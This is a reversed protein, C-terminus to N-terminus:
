RHDRRPQRWQGLGDHDADRAVTGSVLQVGGSLVNLAGDAQTTTSVGLLGALQDVAARREDTLSNVNQGGADGAVIGRNLQAIQQLLGNAQALTGGDSAGTGIGSQLTSSLQSLQTTSNNLTYALQQADTAM